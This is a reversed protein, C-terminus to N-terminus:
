RGMMITAAIARAVELMILYHCICFITGFVLVIIGYGIRLNKKTKIKRAFFLAISLLLAFILVVWYFYLIVELSLLLGEFEGSLLVTM